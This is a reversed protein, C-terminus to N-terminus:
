TIAPFVRLFFLFENEPFLFSNECIKRRGNKELPFLSFQFTMNPLLPATLHSLNKKM